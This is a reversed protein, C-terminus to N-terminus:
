ETVKVSIVPDLNFLVEFPEKGAGKAVQEALSALLERFSLEDGEQIARSTSAGTNPDILVIELSM